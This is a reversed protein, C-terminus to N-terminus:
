NDAMKEQYYTLIRVTVRKVDQPQFRDDDDDSPVLGDLCDRKRTVKLDEEIDFHMDTYRQNLARCETIIRQVDRECRARAEEYSTVAHLSQQSKGKPTNMTPVSEPLIKTVRGLYFPEYNKWMKNINKQPHRRAKRRARERAKKKEDIEEQTQPEDNNGGDGSEEENTNEENEDSDENDNEEGADNNGAGEPEDEPQEPEDNDGQVGGRVRVRPTSRSNPGPARAGERGNRGSKPSSPMTQVIRLSHPKAPVQPASRPM